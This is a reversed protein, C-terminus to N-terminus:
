SRQVPMPAAHGLELFLQLPRDGEGSRDANGFVHRLAQEIRLETVVRRPLGKASLAIEDSRRFDALHEALENAHPNIRGPLSGPSRAICHYGLDAWTAARQHLVQQARDRAEI